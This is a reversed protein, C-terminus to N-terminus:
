ACCGYAVYCVMEELSETGSLKYFKKMTEFAVCYRAMLKGPESPTLRLDNDLSILDISTLSDLNQM